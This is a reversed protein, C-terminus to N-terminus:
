LSIFAVSYYVYYPNKEGGRKKILKSSSHERVDDLREKRGSLIFYSMSWSTCAEDPCM